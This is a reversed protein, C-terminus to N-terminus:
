SAVAAEVGLYPAWAPDVTGVAVVLWCTGRPAVPDHPLRWGLEALLRDGKRGNCVRCAAVVNEWLHRGGRSRPVVHDVTDARRGCYACRHHDRALLAPRTLPLRARYPVRVYTTLRIVSPVPVAHSASRVNGAGKEVIEAKEALVLVVARRLPVVCLPEYTANLLLTGGTTTRTTRV